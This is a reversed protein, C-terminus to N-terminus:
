VVGGALAPLISVVDGENLPTELAQLYRIDEDNLYINVFRHLQGDEGSIQARFGPYRSDLDTLLEGVTTGEGDVSKGGVLTQLTATVRVEVAM